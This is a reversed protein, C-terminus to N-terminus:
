FEYDVDVDFAWKFKERLSVSFVKDVPIDFKKLFAVTIRPDIYNTKSTGLSVNKLEIRLDKKIKLKKIRDRLAQKKATTKAKRVQGRIKKIMADIKEIQENTNKNINKQHNCLLAVKANARNFEDLLINLTTTKDYKKNIKNLEKQFLSSANYTRFVKASLDKMFLQLYKNVDTSTIKDFVDESKKKGKMFEELNKYVQESVPLTRNYRVSDKALFDLKVINQEMLELHEVRLSTVGVTDTEDEGKENGVRLAYNDIFYLATAIQRVKESDASLSKDNSERISKIKRKLKRALNFKDIDKKAKMESHAGLWVYKIKGTIEDNWSALWEVDNDHIVKKWKHGDPAKPVDADKGINITIDEPLMRRKIKGLKPNCGRGIFIGPPEIRFNDVPQEKGDVIAIRFEQEDLKKNEKEQDTLPKKNEKQKMLYNHILKFDCDEFNKIESDKGLIDKWDNWFNKNFINNKAYESDLNKAYLTAFEEVEPNLVMKEGKYLLPIGHPIYEPPFMVGNHVLTNWKKKGGGDQILKNDLEFQQHLWYKFIMHRFEM